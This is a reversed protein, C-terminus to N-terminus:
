LVRDDIWESILDIIAEEEPCDLTLVPVSGFPGNPDSHRRATNDAACKFAPRLITHLVLMPVVGPELQLARKHNVYDQFMAFEATGANCKDLGKKEYVLEFQNIGNMDDLPLPDIMVLGALPLDELYFQAMWCMWPGRAILVAHPFIGRLDLKM